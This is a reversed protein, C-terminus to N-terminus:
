QVIEWTSRTGYIDTSETKFGKLLKCGTNKMYGDICRLTYTKPNVKTVEYTLVSNATTNAFDPNNNERTNRIVMGKVLEM